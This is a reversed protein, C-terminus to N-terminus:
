GGPKRSVGSIAIGEPRREIALSDTRAVVVGGIVADLVDLYPSRGAAMAWEGAALVVAVAGLEPLNLTVFEAAGAEAEVVVSRGDATFRTRAPAVAADPGFGLRWQQAGERAIEIRTDPRLQLRVLRHRGQDVATAAAVRAPPIAAPDLDSQPPMILILDNGLRLAALRPAAFLLGAHVVKPPLPGQPAPPPAQSMVPPPAPAAIGHVVDLAIGDATSRYRLYSGPAPVLDIAGISGDADRQILFGSLGRPAGAIAVFTTPPVLRYAGDPRRLLPVPARAMGPTPAPEALPITLRDFGDHREVQVPGAPVSVAQAAAPLASLAAAV